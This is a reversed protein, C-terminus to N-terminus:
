LQSILMDGKAFSAQPLDGYRDRAAALVEESVDIGTITGDVGVYRALAATEFGPGCGVSLVSEDQQPSVQNIIFDRFAAESDTSLIRERRDREGGDSPPRKPMIGINM